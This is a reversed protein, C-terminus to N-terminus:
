HRKPNMSRAVRARRREPRVFSAVTRKARRAKALCPEGRRCTPRDRIGAVMVRDPTPQDNKPCLHFPRGVGRRQGPLRASRCYNIHIGGSARDAIAGIKRQRGGCRRARRTRARSGTRRAAPVTPRTKRKSVIGELGMKCAHAFVTPGNAGIHAPLLRLWSPYSRPRASRWRIAGCNAATRARDTRCSTAQRGRQGEEGADASGGVALSARLRLWGM